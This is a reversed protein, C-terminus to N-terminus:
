APKLLGQEEVLATVLTKYGATDFLVTVSDDTVRQVVGAGWTAHIV